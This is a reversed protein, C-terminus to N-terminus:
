FCLGASSSEAPKEKTQRDKVGLWQNVLADASSTDNALPHNRFRECGADRLDAM